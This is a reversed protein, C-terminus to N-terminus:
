YSVVLSSDYRYSGDTLSTNGLLSDNSVMISLGQGKKLIPHEDDLLWVTDKGDHAYFTSEDHTVMVIKQLQNNTPPVVTEEYEGTYSDMQKKYDMMRKSWGQRCIKVDEREHGDFYIDKNNKRFRYGWVHMYNKITRESVQGAGGIVDPIIKEELHAKLGL